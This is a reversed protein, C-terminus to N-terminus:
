PMHAAGDAGRSDASRGYSSAEAAAMAFGVMPGDQVMRRAREAVLRAKRRARWQLLRWALAAAAASAAAAALLSSRRGASFAGM